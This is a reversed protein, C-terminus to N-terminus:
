FFDVKGLFRNNLLKKVNFITLIKIFRSKLIFIQNNANM